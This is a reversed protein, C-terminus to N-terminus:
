FFVFDQSVTGKFADPLGMEPFREVLLILILHM